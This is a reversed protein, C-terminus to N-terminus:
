RTAPRPGSHCNDTLILQKRARSLRSMVTGEPIGSTAAIEKYSMQELERLIIVEKLRPTLRDLSARLADRDGKQLLVTEPTPGGCRIDDMEEPTMEQQSILGGRRLWDYCVNRVIALFWPRTECGRFTHFSRVARLYADQVVDEADTDNRVLWRALNYAADLHRVLHSVDALTDKHDPALRQGGAIVNSLVM